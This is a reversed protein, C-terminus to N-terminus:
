AKDEKRKVAMELKDVYENVTQATGCASFLWLEARKLSLVVRPPLHLAEAMACLVSALPVLVDTLANALELAALRFGAWIRALVSKVKERYVAYQKMTKGQKSM